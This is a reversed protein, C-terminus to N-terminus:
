RKELEVKIEIGEDVHAKAYELVGAIMIGQEPLWSGSVMKADPNGGWREWKIETCNGFMQVGKIILREM